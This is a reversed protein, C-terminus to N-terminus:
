KVKSSLDNGAKFKVVKRGEISFFEAHIWVAKGTIPAGYVAAYADTIDAATQAVGAPIVIIPRFKGKVFSKGASVSPSASIVLIDGASVLPIDITMVPTAGGTFDLSEVNGNVVPPTDAPPTELPTNLTAAPTAGSWPCNFLFRNRSNELIYLNFGGITHSDGVRNKKTIQSGASQWELMFSQAITHWLAAFFRLNARRQIQTATNPNKPKVKNTVVSGSRGKYIKSGNLKGSM